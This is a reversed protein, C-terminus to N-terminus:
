KGGREFCLLSGDQGKFRLTRCGLARLEAFTAPLAEPLPGHQEGLWTTLAAVEAGRKQLLFGKNVFNVAFEEFAEGRVPARRCAALSLRVAVAAAAALWVPQAWWARRAPPAGKRETREGGDAREGGGSMRAGTVIAERRGAPPVVARLKGAVAADHAQERVFWAGLAPDGKAQALAKAMAPDAADRGGPRYASLIFKAGSNSM